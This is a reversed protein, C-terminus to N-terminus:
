STHIATTGIVFRKGPGLATEALSHLQHMLETNKQGPTIKHGTVEKFVAEDKKVADVTECLRVFSGTSRVFTKKMWRVLARQAGTLTQKIDETSSDDVKVAQREVQEDVANDPKKMWNQRAATLVDGLLPAM